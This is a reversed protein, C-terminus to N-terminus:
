EGHEGDEDEVEPGNGGHRGQAMAARLADAEEMYYAEDRLNIAAM